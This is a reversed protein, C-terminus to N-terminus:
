TLLLWNTGDFYFQWTGFDAALPYATNLGEVLQAGNPVFSSPSAGFLGNVDKIIVLDGEQPTASSTFTNGGEYCLYLGAPVTPVSTGTLLKTAVRRLSKTLNAASVKFTQTGNDIVMFSNVSDLVGAETLELITKEAM